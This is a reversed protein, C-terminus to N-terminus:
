GSPERQEADGGLYGFLGMGLTDRTTHHGASFLMMLLAILEHHDFRAGDDDQAQLLASLLDDGLEARVATSLRRWVAAVGKGGVGRRRGGAGAVPVARDSAHAPRQRADFFERDEEPM